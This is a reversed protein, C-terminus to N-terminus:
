QYHGNQLMKISALLLFSRLISTCISFKSLLLTDNCKYPFKVIIAICYSKKNLSCIILTQILMCVRLIITDESKLSAQNTLYKFM